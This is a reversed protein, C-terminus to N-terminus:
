LILIINTFLFFKKKKGIDGTTRKGVQAAFGIQRVNKYIDKVHKLLM